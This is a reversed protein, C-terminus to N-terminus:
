INSLDFRYLLKKITWNIVSQVIKNTNTKFKQIQFCQKVAKKSQSIKISKVMLVALNPNFIYIKKRVSLIELRNDTIRQSFPHLILYAQQSEWTRNTKITSFFYNYYLFYHFFAAFINLLSCDILTVYRRDLCNKQFAPCQLTRQWNVHHSKKKFLYLLPIISVTTKWMKEECPYNFWM